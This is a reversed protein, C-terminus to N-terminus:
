HWTPRDAREFAEALETWYDALDLWAEEEFAGQADKAELRCLEAGEFCRTINKRYSSLAFSGARHDREIGDLPWPEM